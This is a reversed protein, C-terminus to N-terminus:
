NFSLYAKCQTDSGAEKVPKQMRYFLASRPARDVIFALQARLAILIHQSRARPFPPPPGQVGVKRPNINLENKQDIASVIRNLQFRIDINYSSLYNGPLYSYGSKVFDYKSCVIILARMKLIVIRRKGLSFM